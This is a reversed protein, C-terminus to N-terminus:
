LLTITGALLPLRQIMDLALRLTELPLDGHVPDYLINVRITRDRQLLEVLNDDTEYRRILAVERVTIGQSQFPTIRCKIWEYTDLGGSLLHIEGHLVHDGAESCFGGPEEITARFARGVLAHDTDSVPRTGTCPPPRTSARVVIRSSSHTEKDHDKEEERSPTCSWGIM